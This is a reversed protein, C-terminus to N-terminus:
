KMVSAPPRSHMALPGHSVAVGKPLGTSGSTYIVYALNEEALTVEPSTMPYAAFDAAGEVSLTPLGDPIPLRDLLHSQTLLLWAGSDQMMYRLRDQPYEIDLPVYVGGAKLVALFAAMIEACRPMAIAVRVEPGVGLEILKHALQNAQTDLELYSLRQEAFFVAPAEPARAAQDAFLQHVFRNTPYVVQTHDWDQRIGRQEELTLLPLEGLGTQPHAMLSLLLSQLHGGLQVMSAESFSERAYILEFSLSQGLNVAVTLPYNTQEHNGVAGFQLQAPAGKELAESVPYNEFVLINDFLADGGLGAWRQVEYLPTYEYDRLALNRSQVTQLWQSVTMDPRPTAVVPLTNIFLGVQQEIGKLEAPRGAVTAGFVVSEQGTCRQLLLLWAAQVLTNVTVKQQRAFEGLRATQALDLERQHKGHGAGAPIEAVRSLAQTLRTPEDLAQLQEKWFNECAQADQRQLWGIYDRYRGPAHNPLQGAYRQLVEGLLQSNSWGDMLIHHNTYILHHRQDDLRVLTLRLLPVADLEFGRQREAAALATWPKRSSRSAVGTM